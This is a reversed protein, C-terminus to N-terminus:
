HGPALGNHMRVVDTIVCNSLLAAMVSSFWQWFRQRFRRIHRYKTNHLSIPLDSRWICIDLQVTSPLIYTLFNVACNNPIMSGSVCCIANIVSAITALCLLLTRMKYWSLCYCPPRRWHLSTYTKNDASCFVISIGSNFYKIFELISTNPTQLKSHFVTTNVDTSATSGLSLVRLDCITNQQQRVSILMVVDDFQFM